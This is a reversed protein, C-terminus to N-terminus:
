SASRVAAPRAGLAEHYVSLIQDTVRPWAFQQVHATGATALRARLLDDDLTRTLAKALEDVSDPPVFLAEQEDRVVNHFGDIDSCVIPTACALSELLTIGFSAKTTPCAYVTSHAYYGPREERLGGMFIIQPDDAALRRYHDYLPGDGVVVLQATPHTVRVIAFASILARLGNRPDLRGLFLITQKDTQLVPPVPVDPRFTELDIGNPIIKWKASFYKEHAIAATKSVCIVAAMKNLLRQVPKKFVSYAYSRSFDTHITGVVPVEAVSLTLLPLTPTLPSHVHVIDYRGKRLAAKLKKRLGFGATIRALSRNAYVPVSHGLEIINPDPERPRLKSTIIDVHHGRTRLEKALFHVHECIGGFHPYFYETVLAIRLSVRV